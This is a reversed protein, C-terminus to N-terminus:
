IVIRGCHQKWPPQRHHSSTVRPPPYHTGKPPLGLSQQQLRVGFRGDKLKWQVYACAGFAQRSADSFVILSPDRCVNPSTLCRKFKVNNLAIMEEFLKMWKCKKHPPVEDDWGLGIQWLEQMAIKPKVLVAAGAGIPDFVGALKSLILRKTLKLPIFMGPDGLPLNEKALELEIKFTFM